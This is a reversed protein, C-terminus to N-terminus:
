LFNDFCEYNLDQVSNNARRMEGKMFTVTPAEQMATVAIKLNLQFEVQTVFNATAVLSFIQKM